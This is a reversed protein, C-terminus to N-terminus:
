KLEFRIPVKVWMEVIKDVRRGPVFSWTKVSDLAARDLIPFGSSKFV